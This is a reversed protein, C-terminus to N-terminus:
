EYKLADVPARTAACYSQWSVTSLAIFITCFTTLAFLWWAIEIHFAFHQIWENMAYWSIPYAIMNAVIVWKIFDGILLGIIQTISAGLVKRVGIEKFRRKITFSTLSFLGVCAIFIALLSFYSMFQFTRKESQYIQEFRDDMFSYEYTWSPYLDKWIKEIHDLTKIINSSNIRVMMKWCIPYHIVFAVPHIDEYLSEFHFDKVIGVVTRYSNPWSIKIKKGVPAKQLKLANVAAENLIIAGSVDTELQESFLRGHLASDIGITKFYDHSVHVIRMLLNDTMGEHSFDCWNSLDDSPVRNASSVTIIQSDQLLKNRFLEYKQRNELENNQLIVINEKDFGIKKSQIFHLQRFMFISSIILVASISFQIVVLIRNLSFKSKGFGVIGKIVHIPQFASIFLAPYSGALLGTILVISSIAAIMTKNLLVTLSLLKETLNNFFPLCLAVIILSIFLAFILVVISESFFQGALQKRSAGIVKKIGVEVARSSANATLLYIYNICAILLILVGIGSYIFVYNIDGQPQIDNKLHASYLHIDKLSQLTIHPFSKDDANLYKTFVEACKTEFASKLFDDQFLTYVLFQQWGWNQMLSEGFVRDADVLTAVFNCNFHSNNPIEYMVGTITYDHENEIKFVEGIPNRDSFYKHAINESIVISFPQELVTEPNGSKLRFSFVRFFSEDAYIVGNENFQSDEYQITHEGVPFIRTAERIEPFNDLLIQSIQPAFYASNNNNILRCINDTNKHFRDFSLEDQIYLLILICVALGIALSSIKIVAYGKQRKLNRVATKAYSKLIAASWYMSDKQFHHSSKVIQSLYWLNAKLRGSSRYLELYLEKLDGLVFEREENNILYYLLWEALRPPKKKNEKL